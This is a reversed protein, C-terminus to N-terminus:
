QKFVDRNHLWVSKQLHDQSEQLDVSGLTFPVVGGLALGVFVPATILPAAIFTTLVIVGGLSALFTGKRKKKVGSAIEQQAEESSNTLEKQLKKAFFGVKYEIKNKTYEYMSGDLYITKTEYTQQIANLAVAEENAKVAPGELQANLNSGILFLAFLTLALYSTTKM